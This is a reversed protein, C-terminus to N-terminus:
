SAEEEPSTDEPSTPLTGEELDLGDASIGESNISVPVPQDEDVEEGGEAVALDQSADEGSGTTRPVASSDVEEDDLDYPDLVFDRRCCPCLPGERQKM